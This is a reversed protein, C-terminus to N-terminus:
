IWVFKVYVPNLTPNNIWLEPTLDIALFSPDNANLRIGVDTIAGKLILPTTNSPEPIILVGRLTYGGAIFPPIGTSVIMVQNDGPLVQRVQAEAVSNPSPQINAIQTYVIDGSTQVYIQLRAITTM